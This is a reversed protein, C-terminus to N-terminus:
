AYFNDLSNTCIKAGDDRLKKPVQHWESVPPRIISLSAQGPIRDVEGSM